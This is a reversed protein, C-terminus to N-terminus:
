WMLAFEKTKLFWFYYFDLWIYGRLLLKIFHLWIFIDLIKKHDRPTPPSHLSLLSRIKCELGLIHDTVAERRGVCSGLPTPELDECLLENDARRIM